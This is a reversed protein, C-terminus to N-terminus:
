FDEGFRSGHKKTEYYHLAHEVVRKIMELQDVPAANALKTLTKASFRKTPEILLSVAPDAMLCGVPLDDLVTLGKCFM